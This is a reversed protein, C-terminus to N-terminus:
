LIPRSAGNGDYVPGETYNYGTALREVSAGDPLIQGHAWGPALLIILLCASNWHNM